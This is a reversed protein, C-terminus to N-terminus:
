ACWIPESGGSFEFSEDSDFQKLQSYESLKTGRKAKSTPRAEAYPILKRRNLIKEPKRNYAHEDVDSCSSLCTLTEDSSTSLDVQTQDDYLRTCDYDLFDYETQWNNCIATSLNMDHGFKIKLEEFYQRIQERSGRQAQRLSRKWKRPMTYSDSDYCITWIQRHSLSSEVKYPVRVEEFHVKDRWQENQRYRLAVKASSHSDSYTSNNSVDGSEVAIKRRQIVDFKEKYKERENFRNFLLVNRCMETLTKMQHQPKSQSNESILDANVCDDFSSSIDAQYQEDSEEDFNLSGSWVSSQSLPRDLTINRFASQIKDCEREFSLKKRLRLNQSVNSYDSDFQNAWKFYENSKGFENAEFFSNKSMDRETFESESATAVHDFSQNWEFGEWSYWDVIKGLELDVKSNYIPKENDISQISARVEEELAMVRLETEYNRLYDDLEGFDYQILHSRIFERYSVSNQVYESYAETNEESYAILGVSPERANLQHLEDTVFESRSYIKHKPTSIRLNVFHNILSECDSEPQLDREPKNDLTIQATRSEEIAVQTSFALLQEVLKEADTKRQKFMIETYYNFCINCSCANEVCIEEESDDKYHNEAAGGGDDNLYLLYKLYDGREICM